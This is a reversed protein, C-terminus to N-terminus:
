IIGMGRRKIEEDFKNIAMILDDDHLKEQVLKLGHIYIKEMEKVTMKYFQGEEAAGKILDIMEEDTIM